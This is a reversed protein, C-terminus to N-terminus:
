PQSINNYRVSGGSFREGYTPSLAPTTPNLAPTTPNVSPPQPPPNALPTTRAATQGTSFNPPAAPPLAPSYRITGSAAYGPQAPLLQDSKNPQVFSYNTPALQAPPLKMAAQVPSQTPIYSIAGNPPLPGVARANMAMESPLAGSKWAANRYESPLLVQQSSYRVSGMNTNNGYLEGGVRNNVQGVRNNVQWQALALAAGLSVFLAVTASAVSHRQPQPM